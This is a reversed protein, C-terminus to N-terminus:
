YVKLIGFYSSFIINNKFNILFSSAMNDSVMTICDRGISITGYILLFSM